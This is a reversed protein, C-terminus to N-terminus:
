LKLDENKIEEYKLSFEKIIDLNNNLYFSNLAKDDIILDYNFKGMILGSYKVNSSDLQKKTHQFYNFHRATYIYIEHEESLKNLININKIVPKSDLYKNEPTGQTFITNDMDFAIKM